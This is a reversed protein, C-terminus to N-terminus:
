DLSGTLSKRQSIEIWNGDPDRVFSIYAVDGLRVPPRGERGGRRLIQAHAARVDFVQVTLYRYGGALQVPDRVADGEHLSIQSAGCQFPGADAEPLGLVDGYFRRHAALDSVVLEVRLQTVGDHGTPVLLLANGDPDDLPRPERLGPRAIVLRRIGGPPAPPLVERSHNIKLVSDGIAHRHQMLGGGLPLRESFPVGAPGQWFELMAECANTFLGVDLAPKALEIVAMGPHAEPM